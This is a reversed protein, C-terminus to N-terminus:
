ENDPSWFNDSNYYELPFTDKLDRSVAMRLAQDGDSSNIVFDVIYYQEGDMMVASVTREANTFEPYYDKIYNWAVGAAEASQGGILPTVPMLQERYQNGFYFLATIILYGIAFRVAAVLLTAGLSREKEPEVRSAAKNETTQPVVIVQPPLAANSGGTQVGAKLTHGCYPCLNMDESIPKRCNTCVLQPSNEAM